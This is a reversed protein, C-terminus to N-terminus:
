AIHRYATGATSVKTVHTGCPLITSDKPCGYLQVRKIGLPLSTFDDATTDKMLVFNHFSKSQAFVFTM